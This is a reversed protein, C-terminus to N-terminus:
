PRGVVVSGDDAIRGTITKKSALNMVRIEDGVGGRALSRGDAIITMAGRQYTLSVIQNREIVAPPGIQDLRVPRGAYLIARTELGVVEDLSIATGPVDGSVIKVDDAGILAQSRITKAAVVTDAQAPAAILAIALILRM